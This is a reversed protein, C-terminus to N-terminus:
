SQGTREGKARGCPDPNRNIGPLGACYLLGASEYMTLRSLLLPVGNQAALAIAEPGPRKGRVFVVAALDCIEATKIIQIHTMGTLLLTHEKCMVLIDSILDASFAMEVERDLSGAGALVEAQLIQQIHALKLM